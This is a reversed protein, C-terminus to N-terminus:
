EATNGYGYDAPDYENPIGVSACYDTVKKRIAPEKLRIRLEEICAQVRGDSEAIPQYGYRYIFRGGKREFHPSDAKIPMIIMNVRYKTNFLFEDIEEFDRMSRREPTYEKKLECILHNPKEKFYVYKGYGADFVANMVRMQTNWEQIHCMAGTYSNVTQQLKIANALTVDSFRHEIKWFCNYIPRNDLYMRDAFIMQGCWPLGHRVPQIYKKTPHLTLKLEALAEQLIAETEKIEELMDEVDAFDDVFETVDRGYLKECVYALFLNALLQAYYNGIPLGRESHGFCTKEPAIFLEWMEIPSHRECNVTPDHMIMTHIMGMFLTRQWEPYGSPRYKAEFYCFVEWVKEKDISMFFGKIDWSAVYGSPHKQMMRQVRLCAHYASMGKRNGFSVNGNAEHATTAVAVIYPAVIHHAIRDQYHAAFVERPRPILIVFCISKWPTYEGNKITEIFMWVRLGFHYHYKVADWSTHKNSWCDEEAGFILNELEESEVPVVNYSNNKNNNNWSGDALNFYYENNNNNQLGAWVNGSPLAVSPILSATESAQMGCASDGECSNHESM